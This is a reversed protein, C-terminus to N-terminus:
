ADDVNGVDHVEVGDDLIRLTLSIGAPVGLFFAVENLDVAL